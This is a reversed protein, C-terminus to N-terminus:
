RGLMGTAKTDISAAFMRQSILKTSPKMRFRTTGGAPQGAIRPRVM